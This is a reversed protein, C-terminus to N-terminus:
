GDSPEKVAGLGFVYQDVPGVGRGHLLPYGHPSQRAQRVQATAPQILLYWGQTSLTQDIPFGATANVYSIQNASLPVNRQIVGNNLAAAVPSQPPQAILAQSAGGAIADRIYGYGVPNYPITRLTTLLNMLTLQLQNNLWIQNIYSDIWLYPGSIQGPYLFQFGQNATAYNGYFNYKNAILNSAATANSENPTIGTQGRFAATTRGNTQEFDVSAIYGMVFSALNIDIPEYIPITGSSNSQSLIYGLSATAPYSAAPSSDPDWAVYAYRNNQSNVWAAFLQKQANGSGNDPDFLTTFSAWNQTQAIVAAMFTAPVSAIAGQSLIAGAAQTM